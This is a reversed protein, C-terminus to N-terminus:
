AQAELIFLPEGEEDYCIQKLYGREVLRTMLERIQDDSITIKRQLKQWMRHCCHPVTSRKLIEVILIEARRNKWGHQGKEIPKLASM